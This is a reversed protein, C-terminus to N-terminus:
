LLRVAGEDDGALAPGVFLAASLLGAFLVSLTPSHLIRSATRMELVEMQPSFIVVAM